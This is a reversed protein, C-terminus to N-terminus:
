IFLEPTIDKIFIPEKLGSLKSHNLLLNLKMKSIKTGEALLNDGNLSFVSRSLVHGVKLDKVSVSVSDEASSKDSKDSQILLYVKELLDPDYRGKPIRMSDLAELRQGSGM